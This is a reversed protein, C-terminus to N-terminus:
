LRHSTTLHILIAKLLEAKRKHVRWGPLRLQEALRRLGSLELLCPDEGHTDHCRKRAALQAASSWLIESYNFAAEVKCRALRHPFGASFQTGLSRQKLGSRKALEAKSWGRRLLAIEVLDREVTRPSKNM